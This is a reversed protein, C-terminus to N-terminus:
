QCRRVTIDDRERCRGVMSDVYSHSIEEGERIERSARMVMRLGDQPNATVLNYEGVEVRLTM